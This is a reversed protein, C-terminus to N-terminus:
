IQYQSQGQPLFPSEWTKLCIIVKECFPCPTRGEGTPASTTALLVLSGGVLAWGISLQGAM